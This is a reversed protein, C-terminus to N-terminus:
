GRTYALDLANITSLRMHYTERHPSLLMGPLGGVKMRSRRSINHSLFAPTFILVPCISLQKNWEVVGLLLLRFTLSKFYILNILCTGCNLILNCSARKRKSWIIDKLLGSSIHPLIIGSDISEKDLRNGLTLSNWNLDAIDINDLRCFPLPSIDM